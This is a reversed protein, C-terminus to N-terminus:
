QVGSSELYKLTKLIAVATKADMMEGAMIMQSAKNIHLKEIELFEDEDPHVEGQMLGLALYLYITEKCYGPSPYIAGLDIYKSATFGTEEGLERVACTLPNEGIELKGAPIELIEKMVPYRFQRVLYINGESDVPVIGVGGPHEVVERKALKGNTLEVVDDKLTIIRGKYIIDSSIQKEFFTM